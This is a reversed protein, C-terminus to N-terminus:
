LLWFNAAQTVPAGGHTRCHDVTTRDIAYMRLSDGPMVLRVLSDFVRNAIRATMQGEFVSEQVRVAKEELCKSVRARVRDDAIDYAFIHLM